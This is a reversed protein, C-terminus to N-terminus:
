GTDPSITSSASSSPAMQSSSSSVRNTLSTPERPSTSPAASCNAGNQRPSRYHFLHQRYANLIELTIEGIQDISRAECWVNFKCLNMAWYEITRDSCNRLILSRLYEHQLRELPTQPATLIRNLRDRAPTPRSM